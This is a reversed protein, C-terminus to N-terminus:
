DTPYPVYTPSDVFEHETIFVDKLSALSTFQKADCETLFSKAVLPNNTWGHEFYMQNGVGWGGYSVIPKSTFIPYWWLRTGAHEIFYTIKMSIYVGFRSM